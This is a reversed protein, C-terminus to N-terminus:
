CGSRFIANGLFGDPIESLTCLLLKEICALAPRGGDVQSEPRICKPTSDVKM